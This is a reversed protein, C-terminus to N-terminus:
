VSQNLLRELLRRAQDIRPDTDAACLERLPRAASPDATAALAHALQARADSDWPLRQDLLAALVEETQVYRSLEIGSAYCIDDRLLAEVADPQLSGAYWRLAAARDGRHADDQQIHDVMWQSLPPHPRMLAAALVAVPEAPSTLHNLVAPADAATLMRRAASLRSPDAGFGGRLVDQVPTLEKSLRLWAAGLAGNLGRPGKKLYIARLLAAAPGKQNQLLRQVWAQERRSAGGKPARVGVRPAGALRAGVTVADDPDLATTNLLPVGLRLLLTRLLSPQDSFGNAIARATDELTSPPAAKLLLTPLVWPLQNRGDANGAIRLEDESVPGLESLTYVRILDNVDGSGLSSRLAQALADDEPHLGYAGLRMAVYTASPQGRYLGDIVRDILGDPAAALCVEAEQLDDPLSPPLLGAVALRSLAWDRAGGPEGDAIALLVDPEHCLTAM